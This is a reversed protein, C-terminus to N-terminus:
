VKIGMGKLVEKDDDTLETKDDSAFERLIRCDSELCHVRCELRNHDEIYESLLESLEIARLPGITVSGDIKAASELAMALDILKNENIEM